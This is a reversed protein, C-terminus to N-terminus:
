ASPVRVVIKESDSTPRTTRETVIMCRLRARFPDSAPRPITYHPNDQDVGVRGHRHRFLSGSGGAVGGGASHDFPDRAVAGGGGNLAGLIVRDAAGEHQGLNVAGHQAALRSIVAFVSEGFPRLRDSIGHDTTTM